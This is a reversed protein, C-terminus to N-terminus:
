RTYKMTFAMDVPSSASSLVMTVTNGAAVAAAGTCTTTAETTSASIGTCSTVDVGDIQLAASVTGSGLDITIDNITYAFKAYQDLVYTKASPNEIFGALHGIKLADLQTQLASSAGALYGLETNTVASHVPIGNADSILARNATIAAAEVIADGSSKMVRNNNLSTGSNTGGKAISLTTISAEKGNLQTQISSTADLYGLTTATVSSASMFGSGDTVPVRSATLAAMKSHAIAASANIDANLISTGLNLKSYAIAADAAVDANVLTAFSAVGSTAKCVGTGSARKIAKGTTLDFLVIEGDVSSAPGVVDGTGAVSGWEAGDTGNSMLVLNDAEGTSKIATGEPTGGGLSSISGANAAGVVLLFLFLIYFKIM